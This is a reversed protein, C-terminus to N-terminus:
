FADGSVRQYQDHQMIKGVRGLDRALAVPRLFWHKFPQKQEDTPWTMRIKPRTMGSVICPEM